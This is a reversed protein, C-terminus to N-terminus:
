KKPVIVLLCGQKKTRLTWYFSLIAGLITLPIGIRKNVLAVTEPALFYGMIFFVVGFILYVAIRRWSFSVKLKLAEKFTLKEVLKGGIAFKLAFNKYTIKPLSNLIYQNTLLILISLAIVYVLLGFGFAADLDRGVLDFVLYGSVCAIIGSPLVQTLAERWYKSYFASNFHKSLMTNDLAIPSAM